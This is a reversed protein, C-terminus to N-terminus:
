RFRWCAQPTECCGVCAGQEECVAGCLAVCGQIRMCVCVDQECAYVIGCDHACISVSVAREYRVHVCLVVIVCLVDVSYVGGGALTRRAEKKSPFLGSAMALDILSMPTEGTAHAKPLSVM